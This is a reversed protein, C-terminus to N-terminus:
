RDEEFELHLYPADVQEAIARATSGANTSVVSLQRPGGPAGSVFAMEAGDPSIAVELLSGLGVIVSPDLLRLDSGDLPDVTGWTFPSCVVLMRGGNWGGNQGYSNCSTGQPLPTTGGDAATRGIRVIQGDRIRAISSGDPAVLSTGPSFPQNGGQDNVTRLLAGTSTSFFSLTTPYFPGEFSDPDRTEGRILTSGDASVLTFCTGTWESTAPPEGTAGEPLTAILAPSGSTFSYLSTVCGSTGLRTVWRGRDLLGRITWPFASPQPLGSLGAMTVLEAQSAAAVTSGDPTIRWAGGGQGTFSTDVGLAGTEPGSTVPWPIPGSPEVVWGWLEYPGEALAASRRAPGPAEAPVAAVDVSWLGPSTPTGSLVGTDDLDMGQPLSGGVISWAAASGLSPVVLQRRVTAGAALVGFSRGSTVDFAEPAPGGDETVVVLFSGSAANGSADVASCEVITTGIPLRGPAPTCTVPVAGDVADVATATWDVDAGSEDEATVTIDAPLTLVPATVDPPPDEPETPPPFCGTLLALTVLSAVALATRVPKPM